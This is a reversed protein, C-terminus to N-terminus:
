DTPTRGHEAKRREFAAGLLFGNIMGAAVGATCERLRSVLMARRIALYQLAEPDIFEAIKALYAEDKADTLDVAADLEQVIESLLYFDETRPRDPFRPDPIRPDVM